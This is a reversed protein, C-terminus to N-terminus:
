DLLSSAWGYDTSLRRTVYAEDTLRQTARAARTTSTPHVAPPAGVEADTAGEDTMLGDREGESDFMSTLTGRGPKM